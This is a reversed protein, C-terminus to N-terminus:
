TAAGSPSNWMLPLPSTTSPRSKAATLTAAYKGSRVVVLQAAIRKAVVALNEPFPLKSDQGTLDMEPLGDSTTRVRAFAPEPQHRDRKAM